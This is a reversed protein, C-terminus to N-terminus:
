AHQRGADITTGAVSITCGRTVICHAIRVGM